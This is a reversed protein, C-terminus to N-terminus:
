KENPLKKTNKLNFALSQMGLPPPAGCALHVRPPILRGRLRGPRGCESKARNRFNAGFTGFGPLDLLAFHASDRM